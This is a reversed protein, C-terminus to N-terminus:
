EGCAIFEQPQSKREGMQSRRRGREAIHAGNEETAAESPYLYTECRWQKKSVTNNRLDQKNNDDDVTPPYRTNKLQAHSSTLVM